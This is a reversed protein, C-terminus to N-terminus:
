YSMANKSIILKLKVNTIYIRDLQTWFMYVAELFYYYQIDKVKQHVAISSAISNLNSRTYLWTVFGVLKLIENM